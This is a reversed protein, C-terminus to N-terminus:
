HKLVGQECCCPIECTVSQDKEVYTNSNIPRDSSNTTKGQLVVWILSGGGHSRKAASQAGLWGTESKRGTEPKGTQPPFPGGNGATQSAM